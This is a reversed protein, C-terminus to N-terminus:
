LSVDAMILVLQVIWSMKERFVSQSYKIHILLALIYLGANSQLTLLPTTTSWSFFTLHQVTWIDTWSDTSLRWIKCFPYANYPDIM